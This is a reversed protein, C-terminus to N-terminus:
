GESSELCRSVEAQQYAHALAILRGEGWVWGTFLIGTPGPCSSWMAPAMMTIRM